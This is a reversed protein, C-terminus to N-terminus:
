IVWDMYPEPKPIPKPIPKTRKLEIIKVRDVSMLPLTFEGTQLYEDYYSMFDIYKGRKCTYTKNIARNMVISVDSQIFLADHLMMLLKLSLVPSTYKALLKQMQQDADYKLFRKVFTIKKNAQEHINRFVYLSKNWQEQKEKEFYQKRIEDRVTKENFMDTYVKMMKIKKDNASITDDYQSAIQSRINDVVINLVQENRSFM